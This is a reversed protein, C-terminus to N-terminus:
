RAKWTLPRGARPSTRGRGPLWGSAQWGPVGMKIEIQTEARRRVNRQNGQRRYVSNALMGAERPQRPGSEVAAKEQITPSRAPREANRKRGNHTSASLRSARASGGAWSNQGTEEPTPGAPTQPREPAERSAQPKGLGRPFALVRAQSNLDKSPEKPGVVGDAPSRSGARDELVSRQDEQHGGHTARRTGPPGLGLRGDWAPGKSKEQATDGHAHIGM